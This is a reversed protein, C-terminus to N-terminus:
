CFPWVPAFLCALCMFPCAFKNNFLLHHGLLVFTRKSRIDMTGNHQLISSVRMGDLLTGLSVLSSSVLLCSYHMSICLFLYLWCPSLCALCACWRMSHFGADHLHMECTTVGLCLWVLMPHLWMLDLGRLASLMAFGLVLSAFMSVFCLLLYAYAHM